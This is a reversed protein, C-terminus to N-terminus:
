YQRFLEVAPKKGERRMKAAEEPSAQVLFGEDNVFITPATQEVGSEDSAGVPAPSEQKQQETEPAQVLFAKITKVAEAQRKISDTPKTLLASFMKKNTAAERIFADASDVSLSSLEKQMVKSGFQALILSPGAGAAGFLKLARTGARSGAIAAMLRLVTGVNDELLTKVAEPSRGQIM